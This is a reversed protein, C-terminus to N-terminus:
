EIKASSPTPRALREILELTALSLQELQAPPLADFHLALYRDAHVAVGLVTTALFALPLDDRVAGVRQGRELLQTVWVEARQVLEDVVDSSRGEGYILRSLAALEPRQLMFATARNTLEQIAAWYSAPDDYQRVDGVEEYLETFVGELVTRCLDAKDAFYYYMAGKSLGADRIIANYSAGAYGRAAFEARAAELIAHKRPPDLTDFRPFPM